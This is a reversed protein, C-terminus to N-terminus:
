SPPNESCRVGADESYVCNHDGVRNRPCNLVRHELGSCQVNDLWITGSGAPVNTLAVGYYGLKLQRCVVQADFYDWSDDCITGWVSNYYIEVRGEKYTSGGVLRLDGSVADVACFFQIIYFFPDM